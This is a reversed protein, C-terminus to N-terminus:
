ADLARHVGACAPSLRTSPRQVTLPQVGCRRRDGRRVLPHGPSRTGSAAGAHRRAGRSAALDRLGGHLWWKAAAGLPRIGPSVEDLLVRVRVRRRRDTAAALAPHDAVRLDDRFWVITPADAM